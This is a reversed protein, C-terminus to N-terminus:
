SSTAGRPNFIRKEGVKRRIANNGGLMNDITAEENHGEARRTCTKSTHSTNNTLGHTWCYSWNKGGLNMFQNTGEPVNNEKNSKSKKDEVAANATNYGANAATLEKRREKEFNIFFTPMHAWTRDAAARKKWDKIGEDMVGSGKLAKLIMRITNADSIRDGGAAAFLRCNHARNFITEIPNKPDWVEEMLALNDALADEDIAGYTDVLHTILEQTTVTAYGHMEDALSATYVDDVAELIMKKLQSDVANCNNWEKLEAQFTAQAAAVAGAAHGGPPHYVPIQAPRQFALPAVGAVLMLAYDAPELILGSLGLQGGGLTSPVARACQLCEKRLRRVAAPTPASDPDMKTLETIPFLSTVDFPSAM